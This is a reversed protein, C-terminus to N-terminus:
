FRHAFVKAISVYVSDSEAWGSGATTERLMVRRYGANLSWDQPLKHTVALGFEGRTKTEGTALTESDLWSLNVQVGTLPGIDHSYGLSAQTFLAESDTTGSTLGRQLRASLSGRPLPRTYSLTGTLSDSGEASRSAGLTIGFSGLPLDGSWGTNLTFGTGEEVQRASLGLTLKGRPRQQTLGVGLAITERAPSGDEEYLTYGLTGTMTLTETLALKVDGNLAYSRNDFFLTPDTQFHDVQTAALRLGGEVPGDIGFRLMAHAALRRRTGNEERDVSDILQEVTDIGDPLTGDEDLFDFLSRLYSVDEVRASLGTEFRSGAGIRAYTLEARPAKLAFEVDKDPDPSSVHRLTGGVTLGIFDTRTESSLSFALGTNSTLTTGDAGPTLDANRTAELRQSVAFRLWVGGSDAADQAALPLPALGLVLGVAPLARLAAM